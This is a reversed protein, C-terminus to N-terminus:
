CGGECYGSVKIYSYCLDFKQTPKILSSRDRTAWDNTIFKVFAQKFKINKLEAFFNSPRKTMLGEIIYDTQRFKTQNYARSKKISQQPYTDFVIHIGRAQHNAVHKLLSHSIDGFTSSVERLTYLYFFGDIIVADLEKPVLKDDIPRKM